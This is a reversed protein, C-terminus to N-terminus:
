KLVNLKQITLQNNNQIQVSYIGSSLDSLSMNIIADNSVSNINREMVLRGRQDFFKLQVMGGNIGSLKISAIDNAPNPYISMSLNNVKNVATVDSITVNSSTACGWSDTVTVSYTGSCLNVASDVTQSSGDDWLYSYAAVGGLAVVKASGNCTGNVDISDSISSTLYSAPEAVNVVIHTKNNVADSIDCYYSGGALNSVGASTATTSWNFSYPAVGYITNLTVAGNTGDKCQVKTILTDVTISRITLYMSDAQSAQYTLDNLNNGVMIAFAVTVSDGAAIDFPGQGVLQSVDVGGANGRSNGASIGAHALADSLGGAGYINMSGASGDNNFAYHGVTANYRLPKVGSFTSITNKEFVYAIKTAADYIATDSSYVLNDWDTYLGVFVSDLNTGSTNKIRYEQIIFDKTNAKNWGITKQTVEIGLKGVGAGNDNSHALIVKDAENGGNTVNLTSLATFDGAESYSAKQTKDTVVLGMSWIYTTSGKNTFGAGTGQNPQMYGLKSNSGISLTINNVDMNLYSPNVLVKFAQSEKYNGDTFTLVVIVYTNNPVGNLVKFSLNNGSVNQTGLTALAGINVTGNVVSIYSSSCTLAVSASTSATLYNTIVGNLNITDGVSFVNDANDSFVGNEFIFGPYGSVTVARLVNLRGTGIKGAFTTNFAITDVIDASNKLVEGIQLASYGPYMKKVLAGAAAVMPSGFSTGGGAKFFSGGQSCVYIGKSPALMDVFENYTSGNGKGPGALNDWKHDVEDSGGISLVHHFSAPYYMSENNMNGAAAVVLSNKNITAYNIIDQGYQNYGATDGWSANIIACGHDAAYVIGEYGAVIAGSADNVKVPLFKTNYGVGVGQTSNDATECAQTAAWSGHYLGTTHSADNDGGVIDWGRFNDIYGDGDNDNGDIPDAYNYKINGNLDAHNYDIGTDIIGVVINTDGKTVDWAPYLQINTWYWQSAISPDNPVGMVEQIPCPEVYQFIGVQSLIAIVKNLPFDGNYKLKYILSLDTYPLGNRTNQERVMEHHPFNKMLSQVQIKNLVPTLAPYTISEVLCYSRYENKVRLMLTKDQYM